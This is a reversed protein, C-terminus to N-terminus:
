QCSPHASSSTLQTHTTSVTLVDTLQKDKVRQPTEDEGPEGAHSHRGLVMADLQLVPLVAVGDQIHQPLDPHLEMDPLPRVDRRLSDPHQQMFPM